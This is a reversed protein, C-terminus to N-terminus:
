AAAICLRCGWCSQPGTGRFHVALQVAVDRWCASEAGCRATLRAQRLQKLLLARKLAQPRRIHRSPVVDPLAARASGLQKCPAHAPSPM